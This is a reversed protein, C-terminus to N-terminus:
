FRVQAITGLGKTIDWVGLGLHDPLLLDRSFCSMFSSSGQKAVVKRYLAACNQIIVGKLRHPTTLIQQDTQFRIWIARATERSQIVM